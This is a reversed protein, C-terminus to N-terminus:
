CWRRCVEKSSEEKRSLDCNLSLVSVTSQFHWVLFKRMGRSYGTVAPGWFIIFASWLLAFHASLLSCSALSCFLWMKQESFSRSDLPSECNEDSYHAMLFSWVIASKLLLYLSAFLCTRRLCGPDLVTSPDGPFLCLHSPSRLSSLPLCLPDPVRTLLCIVLIHGHAHWICSSLPFCICLSVFHEQYLFCGPLIWFVILM